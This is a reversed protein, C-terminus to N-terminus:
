IKAYVAALQAAAMEWTHPYNFAAPGSNRRLAEVVEALIDDVDHSDVFITGDPLWEASNGGRGVVVWCGAASGEIDVLSQVEVWSANLMVRSNQMVDLVTSHEVGGTWELNPNSAVVSQFEEAYLPSTPSAPGVFKIRLGHQSAVRAVELQRKRPEVRGVVCVDNERDAWERDGGRGSIRPAGNPVLLGNKGLWGTDRILSKREGEALLAVMEVGDLARGVSSWVRLTLPMAWFLSRLWKWTDSSTKVRLINRAGFALLERVSEPLFRGVISRLGQRREAKRMLRVSGLDHHISSVVVPRGGAARVSALFDFPRDVNVIHVIADSDLSMSVHFPILRVTFGQSALHLRYQDVQHSDGGRKELADSRLIMNIKKPSHM